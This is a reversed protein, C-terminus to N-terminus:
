NSPAAAKQVRNVLQAKDVEEANEGGVKQVKADTVDLLRLFSLGYRLTKGQTEGALLRRKQLLNRVWEQEPPSLYLLEVDEGPSGHRFVYHLSNIEEDLGEESFSFQYDVLVHSAASIGIGTEDILTQRLASMTVKSEDPGGSVMLSDGTQLRRKTIALVSDLFVRPLGDAEIPVLLRATQRKQAAAPQGFVLLPSLLAASLLLVYGPNAVENLWSSVSASGVHLLRATFPM